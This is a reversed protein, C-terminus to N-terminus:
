VRSLDFALVSKLEPLLEAKKSEVYQLIGDGSDITLGDCYFLSIFMLYETRDLPFQNLLLATNDLPSFKRHVEVEYDKPELRTHGTLYLCAIRHCGDGAFYRSNITKGNVSQISPGSALRIPTSSDYGDRVISKWLKATNQVREIFAPRILHEDRQLRPMFRACVVEKFWVYYARSQPRSLFQDLNDNYLAWEDRLLRIFEIRIRIDYRLPCILRAIDVSEGLESGSVIVRRHRTVRGRIRSLLRRLDGM